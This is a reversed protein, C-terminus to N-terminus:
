PNTRQRMVADDFVAKHQSFPNTQCTVLMVGSTAGTPIAVTAKYVYWTDDYVEPITFITYEGMDVTSWYHAKVKCEGGDQLAKADIKFQMYAGDAPVFDWWTNGLSSGTQSGTTNNYLFQACTPHATGCAKATFGNTAPWYNLSPVGNVEFGPNTVGNPGDARAASNVALFSLVVLAFVIVKKM